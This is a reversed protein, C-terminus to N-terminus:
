SSLVVVVVVVVVLVFLPLVPIGLIVVYLVILSAFSSVLFAMSLLLLLGDLVVVIFDPVVDMGLDADLRTELMSLVLVVAVFADSVDLTGFSSDKSLLLRRM